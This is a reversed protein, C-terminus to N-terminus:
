TCTGDGDVVRGLGRRVDQLKMGSVRGQLDYTEFFAHIM